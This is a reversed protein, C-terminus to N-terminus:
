GIANSPQTALSGHYAGRDFAWAGRFFLFQIGAIEVKDLM